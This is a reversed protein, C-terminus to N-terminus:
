VTAHYFYRAVNVVGKETAERLLEGEEDREPYQWSAKIVLPTRSEDGDRHVKWCTTARGAVYRVRKIVEDIIFREEEGNREIKFYRSGDANTVITPDFGLQGDTMLLYGLLASVFRLGEEHIDFQESAVGGVRDFRWLRM